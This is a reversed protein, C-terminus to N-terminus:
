IAGKAREGEVKSVLGSFEPDGEAFNRLQERLKDGQRYKVTGSIFTGRIFPAHRM